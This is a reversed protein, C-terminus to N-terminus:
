REVPRAAASCVVPHVQDPLRPATGDDSGRRLAVFLVACGAYAVATLVTAPVSKGNPPLLRALQAAGVYSVNFLMDYVSFARGRLADPLTQQVISDTCIKAAQVSFGVLLATVAFAPQTFPLGFALEAAFALVYVAIMLRGRGFQRAGRPTMIAATITGVGAFATVVALGGVGSSFYNRYLLITVVVAFGYAARQVMLAALADRAPRTRWVGLAGDASERAVALLERRWSGRAVREVPGIEARGLRGAAWAAGVYALAALVVIGAIQRDGGGFVARLAAGVGAGVLVLVGGSTTSLSNAPVLARPEVVLPLGASLTALVFRAISYAVLAVVEFDAGTHGFSVLGALVALVAARTLNALVLAQRRSVRDILIGAFPGLLSYPLLAVALTGAVASASTAHEPSFVVFSVLAANLVGDSFQSTLRAVYLRRFGGASLLSWPSTGRPNGM